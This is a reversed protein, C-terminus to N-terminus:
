SDDDDRMATAGSEQNRRDEERANDREASAMRRNFEARSIQKLDVRMALARREMQLHTMLDGYRYYPRIYRDAAATRCDSQGVLSNPWVIECDSKAALYKQRAIASSELPPPVVCGALLLPAALFVLSWTRM